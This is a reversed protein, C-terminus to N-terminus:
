GGRAGPHGWIPFVGDGKPALPSSSAAQGHCSSMHEPLQKNWEPALLFYWKAPLLLGELLGVCGLFIHGLCDARAACTVTPFPHRRPGKHDSMRSFGCGRLGWYGTSQDALSCVQPRYKGMRPPIRDEQPRELQNKKGKPRQGCVGPVSWRGRGSPQPRVIIYRTVRPDPNM